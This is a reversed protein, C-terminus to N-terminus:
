SGAQRGKAIEQQVDTWQPRTTYRARVYDVLAAILQDTFMSGFAPM